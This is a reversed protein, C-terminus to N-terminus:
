QEGYGYKGAKLDTARLATLCSCSEASTPLEHLRLNRLGIGVTPWIREKMGNAM